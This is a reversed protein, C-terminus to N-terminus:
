NSEWIAYDGPAAGVEFLILSESAKVQMYVSDPSQYDNTVGFLLHDNIADSSYLNPNNYSDKSLYDGIRSMINISLDNQDIPAIGGLNTRYIQDDYVFVNGGCVIGAGYEKKTIENTLLNIQTMGFYTQYWNYSYYTRSIWLSNNHIIMQQPGNGVEYTEVIENTEPNIKIVSSGNGQDYLELHPISVFILTGETTISEPLGEIAIQDEIAYTTLNLVKVDKSNWNTFYLKDNLIIMERPSSNQTSITIGPLSLGSQSISYRKIESDGNIIVFLHNEHILISQVVDGVDLLEQIKQGNNFISISGNGQGYNGESAIFLLSESNDEFLNSNENECGLSIFLLSFLINLHILPTKASCLNSFLKNIYKM